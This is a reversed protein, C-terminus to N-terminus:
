VIRYSSLWGIHSYKLTEFMRYIGGIQFDSLECTASCEILTLKTRKYVRNTRVTNSSEINHISKEARIQGNWSSRNGM